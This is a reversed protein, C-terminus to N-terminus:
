LFLMSVLRFIIIGLIALAIVLIFYNSKSSLKEKIKGLSGTLISKKPIGSETTTALTSDQIENESQQLNTRADTIATNEHQTESLKQDPMETSATVDNTLPQIQAPIPATENLTVDDKSSKETSELREIKELMLVLTNQFNVVVNELNDMM